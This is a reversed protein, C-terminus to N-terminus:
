ELDPLKDFNGMEVLYINSYAALYPTCRMARKPARCYAHWGTGREKCVSANFTSPFATCNRSKRPAVGLYPNGHVAGWGRRRGVRFTPRREFLQIYPRTASESTFV